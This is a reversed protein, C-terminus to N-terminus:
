DITRSQERDVKWALVKGEAVLFRTTEEQTTQSRGIVPELIPSYIGTIPNFYPTEKMGTTVATVTTASKEYVWVEFGEQPPNTPTIEKPEGIAAILESVPMGKAIVIKTPAAIPKGVATSTSACGSLVLSIAAIAIAATTPRPLPKM